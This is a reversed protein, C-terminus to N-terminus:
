LKINFYYGFGIAPIDPFQLCHYTPMIEIWRSDGNVYSDFRAMNWWRNCKKHLPCDDNNCFLLDDSIEKPIGLIKIAQNTTLLKNNYELFVREDKIYSSYTQVIEFKRKSM